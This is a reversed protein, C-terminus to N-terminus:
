DNLYITVILAVELGVLIKKKKKILMDVMLTTLM